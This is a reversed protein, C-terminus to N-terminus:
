QSPPGTLHLIKLRACFVRRTTPEWGSEREQWDMMWSPSDRRRAVGGYGQITSQSTTYIGKLSHSFSRTPEAANTTLVVFCLANVELWLQGERSLPRRRAIPIHSFMALGSPSPRHENYM